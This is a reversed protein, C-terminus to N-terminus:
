VLCRSCIASSKQLRVYSGPMPMEADNRWCNAYCLLPPSGDLQTSDQHRANRQQNTSQTADDPMSAALTCVFLKGLYSTGTCHLRSVDVWNKFQNFEVEITNRENYIGFAKFPDAEVNSRIEANAFSRASSNKSIDPRTQPMPKSPLDFRSLPALPATKM